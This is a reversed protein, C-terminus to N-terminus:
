QLWVHTLSRREETLPIGVPFKDADFASGGCQYGEAKGQEAVQDRDTAFPIGRLTFLLCMGDSSERGLSLQITYLELLRPSPQPQKSIEANQVQRTGKPQGTALMQFPSYAMSGHALM